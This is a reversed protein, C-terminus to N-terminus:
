LQEKLYCRYGAFGPPGHGDDAVATRCGSSVSDCRWASRGPPWRGVTVPLRLDNQVGAVGHWFSCTAPSSPGASEWQISIGQSVTM